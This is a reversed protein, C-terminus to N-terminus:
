IGKQKFDLCVPTKLEFVPPMPTLKGTADDIRYSTINGTDQSAAYLYKGYPSIAFNRPTKGAVAVFDVVELKGTKQDVKFIVISDNGRNSAYLYKGSPHMHIDAASNKMKYGEPLSSINQILKLGGDKLVEFSSVTSNLENISYAYSGNKSFSLHRPGAGEPLAVFKQTHPTVKAETSDLNYIWIKDNGLDAIYAFRNDGSVKVSHTHAEDQNEIEIEQSLELAGNDCIKYLSVVGGIYNSVFALKGSRDLAIHAPALGGTELRNIKKLSGNPEIKYSEVFGTEGDAPGLESVAYVYKGKKGVKVFSPNVAEAAVCVYSLKGTNPEQNLLYIGEAQGDVHGEKKTYTGVYIQNISDQTEQAHMPIMMLTLVFLLLIKRM